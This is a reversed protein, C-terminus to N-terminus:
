CVQSIPDRSFNKIHNFYDCWSLLFKRLGIWNQEEMKSFFQLGIWDQDPWFQSWEQDLGIWDQDTSMDPIYGTFSSDTKKPVRYPKKQHLCTPLGLNQDALPMAAGSTQFSLGHRLPAVRNVDHLATLTTFLMKASLWATLSINVMTNTHRASDTRSYATPPRATDVFDAAYFAHSICVRLMNCCVKSFSLKNSCFLLHRIYEVLPKCGKKYRSGHNYCGAVVWRVV